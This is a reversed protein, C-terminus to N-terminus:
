FQNASVTGVTYTAIAGATAALFASVAFAVIKTRAVDISVGAAARENARVALMRLGLTSQRLRCVLLCLLVAVALTGYGLVPSPIQGDLGRFGATAGLRLGFLSPQAVPLAYAGA